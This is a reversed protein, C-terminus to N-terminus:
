PASVSTEASVNGASDTATVVLDHGRAALLSATFAGSDDAIVLARATGEPLSANSLEVVAGPETRGRISVLNINTRSVSDVTPPEPATLDVDIALTTTARQGDAGVAVIGLEHRGETLGVLDASFALDDTVTADGGDVTVKAPANLVGEVRVDRDGIARGMAPSLVLVGLSDDTEEAAGSAVVAIDRISRPLGSEPLQVTGGLAGALDVHRARKGDMVWAGAADAAIDLVAPGSSGPVVDVSDANGSVPDLLAVEDHVGVWVTDHAYEVVGAKDGLDHSVAPRGSRHFSQVDQGVTVWVHARDDVAIDAPKGVLEIETGVALRDDVQHLTAGAAVWVKEQQPDLAMSVVDGAFERQGRLSGDAGFHSVTDKTSLWVDGGVGLALSAKQENGSAGPVRVSVLEQGDVSLARLTRDGYTWVREREADPVVAIAGLDSEGVQGVDAGDLDSVFISEGDALWLEHRESGHPTPDCADGLGDSDSDFFTKSATDPCTDVLDPYRDGDGDTCGLDDEDSLGDGDNDIGDSCSAEWGLLEWTSSADTPDSGGFEEAADVFGDNDDDRDCADGEGDGDTDLQDPNVTLRCNDDADAVEDGDDDPDDDNRVGDNDTDFPSPDVEGPADTQSARGVIPTETLTAFGEDGPGEVIGDGDVDGDCADGFEDIDSNKQDANPVGPCNDEGEATGDGDADGQALQTYRPDAEGLDALGPGNPAYKLRTGLTNFWTSARPTRDGATGQGVVDPRNGVQLESSMGLSHGILHTLTREWLQVAGWQETLGLMRAIPYPAAIEGTPTDIRTPFIGPRFIPTPHGFPPGVIETANYCPGPNSGRAAIVGPCSWLPGLTLLIDEGGLNVDGLPSFDYSEMNRLGFGTAGFSIPDPNPCGGESFTSHGSWIYRVAQNRVAEVREWRDGARQQPTGFYEDRQAARNQDCNVSHAIREDILVNLNVGRSGDPNTVPARSFMGSAYGVGIINPAHHIPDVKVTVIEPCDDVQCDQWDMEFYVDKHLPDPPQNFCSLQDRVRLNEDPFYCAGGFPGFVDEQDIGLDAGDPYSAKFGAGEVDPDVEWPDLLGDGDTDSRRPDTGIRDEVADHIGDCDLDDTCDPLYRYSLINALLKQNEIYTAFGGLYRFETTLMSALVSGDGHPYEVLVPGYSDEVLTTASAPLNRFYGHSAYGWDDLDVRDFVELDSVQGCNLSLCPLSGSIVPHSVADAPIDNDNQYSQQKTVGGVFTRNAWTGGNGPGSAVDAMNAVLTGGQEVWSALDQHVIGGPFLRDYFTQSQAASIVVREFQSLDVSGVDASQLLCFDVGQADLEIANAGLGRPDITTNGAIWPVNDQLLATREDSCDEAAAALRGALAGVESSDNDPEFVTSEPVPGATVAELSQEGHDTHGDHAYATGPLGAVVFAAAVGAYATRRGFSTRHTM